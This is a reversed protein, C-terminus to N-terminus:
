APSFLRRVRRRKAGKAVPELGREISVRPAHCDYQGAIYEVSRRVAAAITSFATAPADLHIRLLVASEQDAQYDLIGPDALLIM